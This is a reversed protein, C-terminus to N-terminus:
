STSNILVCFLPLHIFSFLDPPVVTNIGTLVNLFTTHFLFVRNSRIYKLDSGALTGDAGGDEPGIGM